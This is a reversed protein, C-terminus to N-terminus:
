LLKQEDPKVPFLRGAVHYVQGQVKFTPMFNDECIKKVELHLLKFRM